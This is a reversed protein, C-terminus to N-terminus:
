DISIKYRRYENKDFGKPKNNVFNESSNGYSVKIYPSATHSRFCTGMLMLGYKIVEMAMEFFHLVM